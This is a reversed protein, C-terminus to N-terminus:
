MIRLFECSMMTENWEGLHLLPLLLFGRQSYCPSSCTLPGFFLLEAATMIPNSTVWGTRYCLRTAKLLKWAIHVCLWIIGERWVCWAAQGFCKNWEPNLEVDGPGPSSSCYSFLYWGLLFDHEDVLLKIYDFTTRHGHKTWLWMTSNLREWARQLGRWKGCRM